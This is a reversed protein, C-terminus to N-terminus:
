QRIFRGTLQTDGKKILVVYNGNPLRSTNLRYQNSGNSLQKVDHSFPRGNLDSIDITVPANAPSSIVLNLDGRSITPYIKELSFQCLLYNGEWILQANM